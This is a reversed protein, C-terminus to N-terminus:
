TSLPEARLWSGPWAAAPHFAVSVNIDLIQLWRDRPFVESAGHGGVGAVNVLGDLRGFTTPGGRWGHLFRGLGWM